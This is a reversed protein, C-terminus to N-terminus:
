FVIPSVLNKLVAVVSWGAIASTSSYIDVVAKVGDIEATIKHDDGIMGPVSFINVSTDEPGITALSAAVAVNVKTPLISIAEKANGSFVQREEEETMLGDDYLPTNKLSAPGKRTCIGSKAQGMLSVTRLVDFGGVAGSAIHVKTDHETATEKIKDYLARDAFAGISLVILDAGSSLVTEANDKICQVSAAEAVIDPKLALLEEVTGCAKCGGREALAATKDPTRGMVGVLQYEDLIGSLYSDVIIGALYGNGMIGFKKKGM